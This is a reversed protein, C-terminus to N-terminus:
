LSLQFDGDMEMIGLDQNLFVFFLVFCFVEVKKKKGRPFTEGASTGGVYSGAGKHGEVEPSCLLAM